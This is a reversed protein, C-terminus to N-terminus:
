WTRPAPSAGGTTSRCSPRTACRRSGPRMAEFARIFGPNDAVEARAGEGRARPRCWAAHAAYVTGERGTGLREGLRYGRLPEGGTVPGVLEPDQALIRRELEVLAPSPVVGLEEILEDHFSRFVALADAQRGARYYATMLQARFAERLPHERCLAEITPLVQATHGCALEAEVLLEEATLRCSPWGSRSRSPGRSTLSSPTRRGTGSRLHPVCASSRPSLTRDACRLAPPPSALRSTPPTSPSATLSLQYGPARTVVVDGIVRRLRAVYSRLTTAAAETPEGAFVVEAVRDVSVVLDHHILLVALLRRQRAGGLRQDVGDRTVRISGLAHIGLGLSTATPPAQLAGM